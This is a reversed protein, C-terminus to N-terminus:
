CPEIAARTVLRKESDELAQLTEELSYVKESFKQYPYKNLNAELFQMSKHLYWPDYCLSGIVTLNNRVILGPAMATTDFPSVNGVIAYRGGPRVYNLGESVAEPKGVVEIACDAAEGGTFVKIREIREEPTKYENINITHEAGFEKALNLREEVADIAIYVSTDSSGTISLALYGAKALATGWRGGMDSEGWIWTLPSKAV